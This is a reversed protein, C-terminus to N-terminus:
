HAVTSTAAFIQLMILVGFIISLLTTPIGFRAYGWFSISCRDKASEAVILNAVSSFLTMNGAVTSVYALISWFLESNGLSPVSSAALLVYPVNSLVNSGLLTVGSFIWVQSSLSGSVMQLPSETIIRALGSTQLGGIVVFLSAFFLLLSWEVRALIDAPDRRHFTIVVVAGALASFAMSFGTAFGLCTLGLGFLGIRLRRTKAVEEVDSAESDEELGANATAEPLLLQNRYYLWALLSNFGMAVLVPLSMVAIFRLYNMGSLNGVIMNQPNGTLTLASGINASTVLVILYPFPNLRKHRCIALVLPTMVVCVTDNVLIASSLASIVSLAMLLGFPSDVQAVGSTFKQFLGAARLHEAIIMMGLLLCITDWNVLTYAEEPSMVGCLVMLVAGLMAASPRGIPLLQMRRVSIMIFTFIFILGAAWPHRLGEGAVAGITEM